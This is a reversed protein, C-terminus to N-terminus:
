FRVRVSKGAELRVFATAGTEIQKVNVREFASKLAIANTGARVTLAPHEAIQYTEEVDGEIVLIAPKVPVSVLLTEDREGPAVAVPIDTCVSCSFSLVHAHSDVPVVDGTIVSRAPQRDVSVVVGMPPTLDLTLLREVTKPPASVHAMPSSSGTPLSVKVSAPPEPLPAPDPPSRLATAGVSQATRSHSDHGSTRGAWRHVGFGVAGVAAVIGFAAAGRRFARNRVEVRQIRAVIRLLGPDGPANALARNYDSAAALSRGGKRAEDARECLREVIRRAHASAYAAPDDLSAELDRDAPWFGLRELEAVLADRMAHADAFRDVRVRM